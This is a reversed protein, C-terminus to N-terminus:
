RPISTKGFCIFHLKELNINNKEHNKNRKGKQPAFSDNLICVLVAITVNEILLAFSNM